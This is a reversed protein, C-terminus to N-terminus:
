ELRAADIGITEGPYQERRSALLTKEDRPRHKELGVLTSENAHLSPERLARREPDLVDVDNPRILSEPSRVKWDRELGLGVQPQESGRCQFHGVDIRFNVAM